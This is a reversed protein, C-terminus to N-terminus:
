DPRGDDDDDVNDRDRQGRSLRYRELRELANLFRKRLFTFVPGTRGFVLSVCEVCLVIGVIWYPLWLNSLIPLLTPFWIARGGDATWVVNFFVEWTDNPRLQAWRGTLDGAAAVLACAAWAGAVWQSTSVADPARPRMRAAQLLFILGGLLLFRAYGGLVYLSKGVTPFLNQAVDEVVHMFALWTAFYVFWGVWSRENASQAAEPASLELYERMTTLDFRGSRGTTRLEEAIESGPYTDIVAEAKEIAKMYADRREQTTTARQGREFDPIAQSFMAQAHIESRPDLLTLFAVHAVVFLIAMVILIVLYPLVLSFPSESSNAM